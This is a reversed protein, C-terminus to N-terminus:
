IKNICVCVYQNESHIATCDNFINQNKCIQREVFKISVSNYTLSIPVTRSIWVRDRVLKISVWKSCIANIRIIVCLIQVNIFPLLVRGM